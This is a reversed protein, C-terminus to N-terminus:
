YVPPCNCDKRGARGAPRSYGGSRKGLRFIFGLSISYYHDNSGDAIYNDLYGNFLVRYKGELKLQTNASLGWKIGVGLPVNVQWNSFPEVQTMARNEKRLAGKANTYEVVQYPKFNYFGGGAMVFPTFRYGENLNFFDYSGTLTFENINSAFYYHDSHNDNGLHASNVLSSDGGKAESATFVLQIHIKDTLEYHLGLSVAAKTDVTPLSGGYRMAGGSIEFGLKQATSSQANIHGAFLLILLPLLWALRRFLQGPGCYMRSKKGQGGFNVRNQVRNLQSLRNYFKFM